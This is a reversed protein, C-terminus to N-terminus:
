RFGCLAAFVELTSTPSALLAFMALWVVFLFHWYISVLEIGARARAPEARSVRRFAVALAVIGGLLHVGHLATILYFFSAAPNSAVAHGRATLEGWLSLQGAIFAIAFLAGLGLGGRMAADAGRRGAVRGWQLAASSIALLGTNMWLRWPDALPGGPEATLSRWDGYQSRSLYAITMLVFLMAVVVLLFALFVRAPTREIQAGGGPLEHGYGVFAANFQAFLSM